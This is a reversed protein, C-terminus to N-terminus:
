DTIEKAKLIEVNEDISINDPSTQCMPELLNRDDGCVFFSSSLVGKERIVTFLETYPNALIQKLIAHLSKPFWLISLLLLM